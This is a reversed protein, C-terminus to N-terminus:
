YRQIRFMKNHLLSSVGGSAYTDVHETLNKFIPFKDIKVVSVVFIQLFVIM